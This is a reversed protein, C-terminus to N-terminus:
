LEGSEVWVKIRAEARERWTKAPGAEMEISGDPLVPLFPRAPLFPRNLKNVGFQHAMSKGEVDSSGFRMGTKTARAKVSRKLLETDQLITIKGKNRRREETSDALAPWASGDTAHERGFIDKQVMAEFASARGEMVPTLDELRAIMGDIQEISDSSMDISIMM